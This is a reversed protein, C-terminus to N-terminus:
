TLFSLVFHGGAWMSCSPPAPSQVSDGGKPIRVCRQHAGQRVHTTRWLVKWTM